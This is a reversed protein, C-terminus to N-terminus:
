IIKQKDFPLCIYTSNMFPLTKSPVIAGWIVLDGSDFSASALQM